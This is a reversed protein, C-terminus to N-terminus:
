ITEDSDACGDTVDTNNPPWAPGRFPNLSTLHFVKVPEVFQDANFVSLVQADKNVKAVVPVTNIGVRGGCETIQKASLWLHRKVIQGLLEPNPLPDGTIGDLPSHPWQAANEWVKAPLVFGAPLIVDDINYFHIHATRSRPYKTDNQFSEM